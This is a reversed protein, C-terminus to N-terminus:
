VRDKYVYKKVKYWMVSKILNCSGRNEPFIKGRKFCFMKGNIDKGLNSKEWTDM